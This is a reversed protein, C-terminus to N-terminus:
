VLFRKQAVKKPKGNSPERPGSNELTAGRSLYWEDRIAGHKDLTYHNHRYDIIINNTTRIRGEFQRVDTTDCALILMTLDPDNLGVGGKKQGAILVRKSKDWKKKTGILLEVSEKKEVLMNFVGQALEQRECLVIIKEDKYELINQVIDEWFTKNENLSSIVETWKLVVHGNVQVYQVNPKINTWRRIVTFSKTEKRVIFENPTGFHLHMLADLGDKRDPTASLGIFKDPTFRLAAKTLATTTCLHIEDIILMGVDKLEERPITSAKIVGMIYIDANPDLKDKGKVCQIKATKGTFRELEEIFQEKIVDMHSLIATKYGFYASLYAAMMTKGYGTFCALLVSNKEELIKIAQAAVINQDRGRKKPDTEKTYLDFVFKINIKPHNQKITAGYKESFRLPLYVLKEKEDLDFACISKPKQEYITKKPMITFNNILEILKKKDIDSVSLVAAM